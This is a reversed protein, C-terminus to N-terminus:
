RRWIWGFHAAFNAGSGAAIGALQAALPSLWQAAITAVTVTLALAVLAAANFRALRGLSWRRLHYTWLENGAYNWVIAAETALASALPFWAGLEGHVLWLVALNVVVGSAGVTAFRAFAAPATPKARAPGAHDDAAIPREM